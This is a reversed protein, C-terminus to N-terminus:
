GKKLKKINKKPLKIKIQAQKSPFTNNIDGTTMGIDPGSNVAAQYRPYVNIDELIKKIQNEFNM